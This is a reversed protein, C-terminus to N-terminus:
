KSSYCAINESQSIGYEWNYRLSPDSNILKALRQVSPNWKFNSSLKHIRKMYRSIAKPCIDLLGGKTSKEKTLTLSALYLAILLICFINFFM